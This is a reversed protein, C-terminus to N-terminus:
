RETKLWDGLNVLQLSLASFLSFIGISILSPLLHLSWSKCYRSFIYVMIFFIGLRVWGLLDAKLLLNRHALWTITCSVAIQTIVTALAAGWAQWLNIFILNLLFNLVVGALFVTNMVRINESATLLTGYIYGLSIGLYSLFLLQFVQGWYITADHYLLDIISQGYVLAISIIMLSFTLLANRATETLEKLPGGSRIMKAFMPLLLGAFLLGVNSFADLIRYSAAYIGAEEKGNKLLRELMVGDMRTYLTMLLLILAYPFSKKLIALSFTEDFRWRYSFLGSKQQTFLLTIVLTIGLAVSQFVIFDHINLQYDSFWLVYGVGMILLFKDSISLLSDLRYHGLASLTTRLFMILSVLIQNIIIIFLTPWIFDKFGVILALFITVLTFSLALVIKVALIKPLYKPILREYKSLVSHNYNQLGFDNIIQFLYVFNYLAFYLGYESAGVSNQVGRDIGFIYFPKILLNLTVVLVLNSLFIKKM